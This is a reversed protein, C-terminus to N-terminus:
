HVYNTEVTYRSYQAGTSANLQRTTAMLMKDYISEGKVGLGMEKASPVNVMAKVLDVHDPDQLKRATSTGAPPKPLAAEMASLKIKRKKQLSKIWNNKAIDMASTGNKMTMAMAQRSVRYIRIRKIGQKVQTKGQAKYSGAMKVKAMLIAKLRLKAHNM